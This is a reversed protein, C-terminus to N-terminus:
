HKLTSQNGQVVFLLGIYLIGLEMVVMESKSKNKQNLKLQLQTGHHWRQMLTESKYTEARLRPFTHRLNTPPQFLVSIGRGTHPQTHPESDLLHSNGPSVLSSYVPFWSLLISFQTAAVSSSLLLASDEMEFLQWSSAFNSLNSLHM